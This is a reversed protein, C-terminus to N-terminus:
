KLFIVKKTEKSYGGDGSQADLRIFYIGSSLKVGHDDKGDWEISYSGAKRKDKVLTRIERGTLDIMILHVESPFPLTYHIRTKGHTPNPLNFLTPKKIEVEFESIEEEEVGPTPTFQFIWLGTNSDTLYVVQNMGPHVGWAYGPTEYFGSLSPNTPDSVDAVVFGDTAYSLYAYGDMVYVNRAYGYYDNDTYTFTGIQSPATPDSVDMIRLFGGPNIEDTTYCYPRVFFASRNVANPYDYSGIEIPSGPYVFDVIKLGGSWHSVYATDNLVYLDHILTDQPNSFYAGILSPSLPNTIDLVYLSDGLTDGYTSKALYARGGEVFVNHVGGRDFYQARETPNTPNTIDLIRLGTLDSTIYAKTGQVKVDKIEDGPNYRGVVIPNSPISVDLIFLGDQLGAVYAFPDRYFLDAIYYSEDLEGTVQLSEPDSKDVLILGGHNAPIYVQNGQVPMGQMGLAFLDLTYFTDLSAETLFSPSFPPTVDASVLLLEFAPYPVPDGLLPHLVEYKYIYAITDELALSFAIAPDFPTGLGLFGELAPNTPDSVNIIQMSAAGDQPAVTIYAYNGSVKVDLAYLLSFSGVLTPNVPDVINYIRLGYLYDVAYLLSDSLDVNLVSGGGTLIKSIMDPNTPDSVNFLFLSDAFGVVFALTDSVDVNFSTVNFLGVPTPDFPNTLDFIRFGEFQNALYLSNGKLDMGIIFDRLRITSVLSLNTSDSVNVIQLVDGSGVYAISDKVAMAFAPGYLARGLLTVNSSDYTISAPHSGSGRGKMSLIVKEIDVLPAFAGVLLAM